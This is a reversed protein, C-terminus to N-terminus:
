KVRVEHPYVHAFPLGAITTTIKHKLKRRVNEIEETSLTSANITASVEIDYCACRATAKVKRIQKKM